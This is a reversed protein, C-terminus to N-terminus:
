DQGYMAIAITTPFLDGSLFELNQDLIVHCPGRADAVHINARSTKRRHAQLKNTSANTGCAACQMCWKPFQLALIQPIEAGLV